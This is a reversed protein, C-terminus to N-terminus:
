CSTSSINLRGTATLNIDRKQHIKSICLSYTGGGSAIAGFRNYVISDGGAAPITFSTALAEHARLVLDGASWGGSNDSDAFVLWGGRWTDAVATSCTIGDSTKCVGASTSQKIAESRALNLDAILDNTATILQNSHVFQSLGPAALGILIGLITIVVILEILTFGIYFRCKGVFPTNGCIFPYKFTDIPGVLPRIPCIFPIFSNRNDRERSKPQNM